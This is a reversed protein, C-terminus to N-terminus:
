KEISDNEPINDLDEVSPVDTSDAGTVPAEANQSDDEVGDLDDVAPADVATGDGIVAEDRVADNETIDDLEGVSPTVVHVDDAVEPEDTEPMAEITGSVAYLKQADEDIAIVYEPAEVPKNDTFTVCIHGDKNQYVFM